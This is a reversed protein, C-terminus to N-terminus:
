SFYIQLEKVIMLPMDSLAIMINKWEKDRETYTDFDNYM